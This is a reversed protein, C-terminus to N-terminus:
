GSARHRRRSMRYMLPGNMLRDMYGYTRDFAWALLLVKLHV